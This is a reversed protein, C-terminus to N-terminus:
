QTSEKPNTKWKSILNNRIYFYVKHMKVVWNFVYMRTVDAKDVSVGQGSSGNYYATSITDKEEIRWFDNEIM